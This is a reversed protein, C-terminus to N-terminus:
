IYVASRKYAKNIVKFFLVRKEVYEGQVEICWQWHEPLKM